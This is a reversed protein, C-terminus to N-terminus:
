LLSLNRSERIDSLTLFEYAVLANDTILRGPVFASQQESIIVPLIMKLRNALVKSAIKYLVICLSIPRFNKLNDPNPVKLILVIISDCLGEPISEGEWFGRMATCVEQEFFTWHTQYFLAPFGNSGHLKTPGM